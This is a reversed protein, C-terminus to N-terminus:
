NRPRGLPRKEEPKGMLVWFANREGGEGYACAWGMENEKIQQGQYKSFLM